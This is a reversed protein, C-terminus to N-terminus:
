YDARDNSGTSQIAFIAPPLAHSHLARQDAASPADYLSGGMAM